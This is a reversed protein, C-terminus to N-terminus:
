CSKNLALQPGRIRSGHGHRACFTEPEKIDGVDDIAEEEKRATMQSIGDALQRECDATCSEGCDACTKERKM